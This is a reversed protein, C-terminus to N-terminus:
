GHDRPGGVGALQVVCVFIVFVNWSFLKIKKLPCLMSMVM